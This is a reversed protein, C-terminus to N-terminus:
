RMWRLASPKLVPLIALEHVRKQDTDRLAITVVRELSGKTSRKVEDFAKAAEEPTSAEAVTRGDVLVRYPARFSAIHRLFAAKLRHVIADKHARLRELISDINPPLSNPDYGVKLADGDLYLEVGHRKCEALLKDVENM